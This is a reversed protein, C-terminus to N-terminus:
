TEGKKIELLGKVFSYETRSVLGSKRLRDLTEFNILLKENEM